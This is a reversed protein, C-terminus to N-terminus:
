PKSLNPGPRTRAEGSVSDVPTVQFTWGTTRNSMKMYLLYIYKRSALQATSGSPFIDAFPNLLTKDSTSRVFIIVPSSLNLDPQPTRTLSAELHDLVWGMSWCIGMLESKEKSPTAPTPPPFIFPHLQSTSSPSTGSVEASLLSLDELSRTSAQTSYGSDHSSSFYQGGRPSINPSNSESSPKNLIVTGQSTENTRSKGHADPHYSRFKSITILEPPSAPRNIKVSRAIECSASIKRSEGHQRYQVIQCKRKKAKHHEDSKANQYNTSIFKGFRWCKEDKIGGVEPSAIGKVPLDSFIHSRPSSRENLFYNQTSPASIKSHKSSTSIDISNCRTGSSHDDGCRNDSYPRLLM